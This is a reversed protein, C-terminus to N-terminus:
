MKRIFWKTLNLKLLGGIVHANLPLPTLTWTNNADLAYLEKQMAVVYGDLIM